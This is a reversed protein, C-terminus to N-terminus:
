VVKPYKALPVGLLALASFFHFKNAVEYISKLEKVRDKPYTKHSGYAGLVVASAGVVGALRVFPGTQASLQWLPIEERIIQVPLSQPTTGSVM